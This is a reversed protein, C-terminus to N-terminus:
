SLPPSGVIRCSVMRWETGNLQFVARFPVARETNAGAFARWKLTTALDVIAQGSELRPTGVSARVVSLSSSKMLEALRDLNRRDAETAPSYLSRVRDINRAGLARAYDDVAAKIGAEGSRLLEEPTPGSPEKAKEAVVEPKKTVTITKNATVSGVTATVVARGAEGARMRGTSADIQVVAPNNSSWTIPANTVLNNRTDRVTAVFEQSQGSELQDVGAIIIDRVAAARIELTTEATRSEGRATIRVTGASVATVEGTRSDVQAISPDSSSWTLTAARLPRRTSDFAQARLSVKDGVQVLEGAPPPQIEISAIRPADPSRAPAPTVEFAVTDAASGNRAIVVARGASVASVQGTFSDVVASPTGSQWRTAASSTNAGGRVDATLVFADGVRVQAPPDSLALTAAANALTEGSTEAKQSPKSASWLFLGVGVVAIAAVGAWVPWLQRRAPTEAAVAEPQLSPPRQVDVVPVVAPAMVSLSVGGEVDQARATIVVTGPRVATVEGKDSVTAVRTDSSKWRVRADVTKGTIDSVVASLLVRQKLSLESEPARVVVTALPAAAITMRFSATKGECKASLTVTGANHATVVGRDSVTAVSRDSSTWTVSRGHLAAGSEDRAFAILDLTDGATMSEHANGIELRAVPRPRVSLRIEDRQSDCVAFVDLAGSAHLTLEGSHSISGIGPPSTSWSVPRDLRRGAKDTVTAALRLTEGVVPSMNTPAIKVHAAAAPAVTVTISSEAGSVSATVTAIGASVASIAGSRPDVRVAAGPGTSWVVVDVPSLPSGGQVIARATVTDGVEMALVPPEVAITRPPLTVPPQSAHPQSVPPATRRDVPREVSPSRVPRRPVSPIPSLPTRLGDAVSHATGVDALRALEDLVPDGPPVPFAQLASLAATMSPWRDNPKKALMRLVAAELDPPCDARHKVIPPVEFTTHAQMLAFSSDGSFPQRGALMEYAVVGLSYQDSAPTLAAAFCQEPSMYAATGHVAGTQTMSPSAMVKAIGFDTVIAKGDADLLINGPKIDRHIVGRRHAYALASGVQSLIARVVPFPLADSSALVKDLPRGAVFEMIFFHLDDVERVAHVTVINSHTLNAVTVAEQHFREVMADNLMVGPSMVKIAVRRNLAIEHALFVAAMGGRGIEGIIEYEGLTAAKLRQLIREWPLIGPIQATPETKGPSSAPETRSASPSASDSGSASPSLDRGCIACFRDAALGM